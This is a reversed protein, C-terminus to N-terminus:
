KVNQTAMLNFKSASLELHAEKCCWKIVVGRANDVLNVLLLRRSEEGM